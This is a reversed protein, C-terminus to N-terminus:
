LAAAAATKTIKLNAFSGGSNNGLWLGVGGKQNANLKEVELSAQQANNVFVAIHSGNVVIKVHFWDDAGPANEIKNEYKGPFENRLKEWDYDPMSIYQVAHSRRVADNSKFNFPRFYLADYTQLGQMHFAFGVFSQQFKSSGKIDLEVIGNSFDSGKLIMLGDSAVENFSVAKKNSTNVPTAKRNAVTWLTEDQLNPEIVQSYLAHEGLCLLFLLFYKQLM